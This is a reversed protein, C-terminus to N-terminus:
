SISLKTPHGIFLYEETTGRHGANPSLTNKRRLVHSSFVKYLNAIEFHFANSVLVTVGRQMARSCAQALRKQDNWSFNKENYRKFCNNNHTVTYIPDCYVLDGVAADNICDEFDRCLIETGKLLSSAELLLEKKYLAEPTRNGGGFPVNFHGSQNVRYMGSFATRNLYLFHIAKEIECQPQASRIKEYTLKNVPLSQLGSILDKPRDRVQIYTNVLDRNIDSLLASKIAFHFFFAGGGLFPEFYKRVKITGIIDELIPMLWRKGGPWKLFPKKCPNRPHLEWTGNHKIQFSEIM